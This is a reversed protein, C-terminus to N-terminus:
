DLRSSAYAEFGYKKLIDAAAQAGAEKCDVNQYNVASPNWIRFCRSGWTNQDIGAAKLTRGLKTNGKIGYIEVWAFGCPFNDEGNLHKSIYEIARTHAASKAEAVIAQVQDVTYQM